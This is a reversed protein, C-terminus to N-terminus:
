NGPVLGASPKFKVVKRAPIHIKEGPKRPNVGDRASRQVVSFTGLGFVQVPEDRRACEAVTEIFANLAKQAEVKSLGAKEAIASILQTKNM